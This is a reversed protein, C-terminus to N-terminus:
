RYAAPGAAGPVAAAPEAGALPAPGAAQGGPVSGDPQAGAAAAGSQGALVAARRSLVAAGPFYALGGARVTGGDLRSFRDISAEGDGSPGLGGRVASVPSRLLSRLLMGPQGCAIRQVGYTTTVDAWAEGSLTVALGSGAPGFALVSPGHSQEDGGDESMAAKELADAVADAFRRGDGGSVATEELLDLLVDAFQGFNLSCLLILGEHRALVGDGLVPWLGPPHSVENVSAERWPLAVSHVPHADARERGAM